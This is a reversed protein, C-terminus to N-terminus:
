GATLKRPKRQRQSLAESCRVVGLSRASGATFQIVLGQGRMENSKSIPAGTESVSTASCNGLTRFSREREFRIRMKSHVDASARSFIALRAFSPINRTQAIVPVAEHEVRPTVENHERFLCFHGGNIKRIKPKEV